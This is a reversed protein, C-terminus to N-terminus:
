DFMKKNIEDRKRSYNKDVNNPVSKQIADIFAQEEIQKASDIRAPVILGTKTFYDISEKSSLYKVFKIAQEKHKSNKTIAWGSADAVVIGPFTVIGYPFNATKSIKPFMWRGSLYLGLKGDLFMQALTSSGVQSPTPAYKGELDKYFIIGNEYGLTQTYPSAWFIDREYSVGYHNKDSVKDILNKFDDFSWDPKIEGTINRNYFFIFNSIDRPVALLKGDYSLVDLSQSYFDQQNIISNLNELHSSYLPLYLNNIFIVDPETSSAFLLHIKQFYNQPIHIFNIKIDPNEKEYDTILKKLIQIETVSGWSSFSIEEINSKSCSCLLISICILIVLRKLM